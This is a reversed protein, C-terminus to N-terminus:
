NMSARCSLFSFLSVRGCAMMEEGAQLEVCPTHAFGPMIRAECREWAHAFRWFEVIPIMEKKVARYPGMVVAIASLDSLINGVEYTAMQSLPYCAWQRSTMTRGIDDLLTLYAQILPSLPLLAQVAGVIISSTIQLEFKFPM